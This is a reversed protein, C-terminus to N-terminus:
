FKIFENRLLEEKNIHKAIKNTIIRTSPPRKGDKLHQIKIFNIIKIIENGAAIHTVKRAM